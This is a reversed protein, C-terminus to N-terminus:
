AAVYTNSLSKGARRGALAAGAVSPPPSRTESGAVPRHRTTHKEGRWSRVRARIAGPSMRGTTSTQASSVVTRPASGEMRYTWTKSFLPAIIPHELGWGWQWTQAV